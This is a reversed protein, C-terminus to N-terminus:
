EPKDTKPVKFGNMICGPIVPNTPQGTRTMHEGASRQFQTPTQGTYQRFRNSFTPMSAFGVETAIEQISKNGSALLRTAKTIRLRAIYDRPSEGFQNAFTRSFHSPSYCAIEAAREIRIPQDYNAALWQRAAEIPKLAHNRAIWREVTQEGAM